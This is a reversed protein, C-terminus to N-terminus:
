RGAAGASTPASPPGGPGRMSGPMGPMGGPPGGRPGGPGGFGPIGGPLGGPGGPFGGAAGGGSAAAEKPTAFFNNARIFGVITVNYTGRLLPATGELRLGDAVALYRPMNAWSRVNNMIQEYTGEVQVAGLDRVVVPFAYPQPFNYFTTLITSVPQDESIGAVTPGSLVRVGGQKLQRNVASQMSNRFKRTDVSLQYANVALNIGGSAVTTPPTRTAVISRWAAAQSNVKNMAEDVTKKADEYKAATAQEENFVEAIADAEAKKPQYQWFYGYALPLAAASLGFVYITVPSLKM